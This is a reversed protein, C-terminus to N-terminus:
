LRLLVDQNIFDQKTKKGKKGTFTMTNFIDRNTNQLHDYLSKRLENINSNVPIGQHELGVISAYFACNGDGLVNQISGYKEIRRIVEERISRRSTRTM